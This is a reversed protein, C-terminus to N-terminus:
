IINGPLLNVNSITKQTLTCTVSTYMLTADCAFASLSPNGHHTFINNEYPWHPWQVIEILWISYLRESYMLSCNAAGINVLSSIAISCKEATWGRAPFFVSQDFFSFRLREEYLTNPQLAIDMYLSYTLNSPTM